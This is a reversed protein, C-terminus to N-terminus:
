LTNTSSICQSQRLRQRIYKLYYKDTIFAPIYNLRPDLGVVTPNGTEKIRDILRDIIM